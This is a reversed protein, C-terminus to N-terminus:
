TIVLAIKSQLTYAHNIHFKVSSFTKTTVKSTQSLHTAAVAAAAAADFGHLFACFMAVCPGVFYYHIAQMRM